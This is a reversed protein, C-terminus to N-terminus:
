LNKNKSEREREREEKKRKKVLKTDIEAHLKYSYEKLIYV